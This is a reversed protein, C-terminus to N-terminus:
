AASMVQRMAQASERALQRTELELATVKSIWDFREVWYAFREKSWGKPGKWNCDVTNWDYEHEMPGELDYIGKSNFKFWVATGPVWYNLTRIERTELWYDRHAPWEEKYFDQEEDLDTHHYVEWPTKELTRRIIWDAHQIVQPEPNGYASLKACFANMNIWPQCKAKRDPDTSSPQKFSFAFERWEMNFYWVNTDACVTGDCPLMFHALEALKDNVDTLEKIADNITSWIHCCTIETANARGDPKERIAQFLPRNIRAAIDSVSAHPDIFLEELADLQEAAPAGDRKRQTEIFARYVDVAM